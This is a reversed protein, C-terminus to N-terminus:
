GFTFAYGSVGPEFRLSLLHRGARPLEVLRYLREGRVTVFGGRADSGALRGPLPRGDLLLRVRRPEGGESGLVLFVRRAGFALDLRADKVATARDPAIRWRGGYALSDPPLGSGPVAFSRTGSEIPGTLFRDARASGLYSEPTTV